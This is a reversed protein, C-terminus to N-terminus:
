NVITGVGFRTATHNCILRQSTHEIARLTFKFKDISVVLLALGRAARDMPNSCALQRINGAKLLTERIGYREVKGNHLLIPVWPEDVLNFDINSTTV